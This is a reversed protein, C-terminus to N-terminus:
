VNQLDKETIIIFEVDGKRECWEQAAKWKARNKVYTEVKKMSSKTHRKTVPAYTQSFPKIEVLYKKLGNKTKMTVNNDIFYRRLKKTKSLPDQYPIIVSESGWTVVNASRDLYRMFRLELSSRYIIPYTGKYKEPNSPKFVGQKYNFSKKVNINICTLYYYM